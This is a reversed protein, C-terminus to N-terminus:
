FLKFIKRTKRKSKNKRQRKTSSKYNTKISNMPKDNQREHPIYRLFWEEYEKSNKKQKLEKYKETKLLRMSELTEQKGYCQISFRKLVGKQTLRNKEQVRFLFESMCLIRNKDYYERNAYLFALYFSLMTDITAIKIIRRNKKISNYSHCAIPEYIFAVTDNNVIIEYHPAIIEGIGKHKKIKIKHFGSDQLREKVIQCATEPDESLVDFDPIPQVHEKKNIYKTFMRNAMAGFFILGQNIFSDRLTQFIKIEDSESIKDYSSYMERQIQLPDCDTAKLPYFKNLLTLRKLVKEWRSLDGKPRSLELYMSMRLYNPPAYHIGAVKISEKFVAKYLEKDMLTIDAVPIFNVYVKYTGHHVGAKAEVDTFGEKYYIDALTKADELANPSFFDYDPFEIDKNYFQESEPLINNIATGGYCVLKKNILFKEILKIIKQTEESRLKQKGEIKEANDIANRLIALECEEFSLNKKCISHVM